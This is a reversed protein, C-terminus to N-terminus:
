AELRINYIKAAGIGMVAVYVGGSFASIDLTYEKRASIEMTTRTPYNTVFKSLDIETSNCVISLLRDANNTPLKTVEAEVVLKRANAADVTAQIGVVSATEANMTFIISDTGITVSSNAQSFREFEVLAGEGSHFLYFVYLDVWKGAQYIVATKDVWAGSIYQKAAQPLVQLTNKKLANFPASSSNATAIWVMGAAPNTPQAASFVWSTIATSTNVWITNEKPSTPQTTGGVVEFNLGGSGGVGRRVIYCDAM